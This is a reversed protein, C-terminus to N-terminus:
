IPRRAISADGHGPKKGGEDGEDEGGAVGGGLEVL